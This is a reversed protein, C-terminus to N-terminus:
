SREWRQIDKQLREAAQTLMRSAHRWDYVTGRRSPTLSEVKQAEEMCREAARLLGAVEARLTVCQLEM